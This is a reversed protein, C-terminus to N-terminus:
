EKPLLSKLEFYKKQLAANEHQISEISKKFERENDLLSLYVELSNKGFLTDGVFLAVLIVLIIIASKYLLRFTGSKISSDILEDTIKNM